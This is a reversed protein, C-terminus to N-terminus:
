ESMGTVNVITYKSFDSLLEAAELLKEMTVTEIKALTEDPTFTRGYTLMNRGNSLMRSQVSEQGFMFSSKLQERASELEEAEITGSKLRELEERIADMAEETRAMSVGAVVAFYGLSRYTSTMSYVSYALGKQERVHQFLRSSMGGGLINSLVLLPYRLESEAPVTPIGIALNSQNIDKTVTINEPEAKPAEEPRLIDSMPKLELFHHEFYDAVEEEDFSGAVSVVIQDRTYHDFYYDCIQERTFASVTEESGLVPHGFGIGRGIANELEDMSVDTPDDQNMHIEEIVVKKEKEIEEEAFLPHEVMDTLVDASRRFHEDLCKVYYCTEAKGTFANMQGGIRDITQVIEFATRNESGKFLMHEIFHSIGEDKPGEYMAGNNCWIGISVSRVGSMPELILRVGHSLTLTKSM